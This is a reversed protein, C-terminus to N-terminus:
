TLFVALMLLAVLLVVTAMIIWVHGTVWVRARQGYPRMFTNEGSEISNIAAVRRALDPDELALAHEMEALIRREKGTLSM